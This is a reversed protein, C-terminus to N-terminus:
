NITSKIKHMQEIVNDITYNKSLAKYKIGIGGAAIWKDINPRYDDILLNGAAYQAKNDTFIIEKPKVGINLDIWAIKGMMSPWEHGKLPTTIISYNGFLNIAEDILMDANKLKGLWKFFSSEPQSYLWDKHKIRALVDDFNAHSYHEVKMLQEVRTFYDALVGDMDLFCKM